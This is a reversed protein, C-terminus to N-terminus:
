TEKRGKMRESEKRIILYYLRWHKCTCENWFFILIYILASSAFASLGLSTSVFVIVFFFIYLFFFYRLIFCFCYCFCHAVAPQHRWTFLLFFFDDAALVNRRRKMRRVVFILFFVCSFFLHVFRRDGGCILFYLFLLTSLSFYLSIFHAFLLMAITNFCFCNKLYFKLIFCFIECSSERVLSACLINSVFSSALATRMWECQRKKQVNASDVGDNMRENAEWSKQMRKTTKSQM